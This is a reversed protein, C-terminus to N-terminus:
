ILASNGACCQRPLREVDNGGPVPFQAAVDLVQLVPQDLLDRAYTASDSLGPHQTLQASPRSRKTTRSRCAGPHRATAPANREVSLSAPTHPAGQLHTPKRLLGSTSSSEKTRGKTHLPSPARRPRGFPQSPMKSRCIQLNCNSQPMGTRGLCSTGGHFGANHGRRHGWTGGSCTM